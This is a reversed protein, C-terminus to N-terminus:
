KANENTFNQSVSTTRNDFYKRMWMELNIWKWIERSINIKGSLHLNYLSKAKDIDIIKRSAFSESNLIGFILEKFGETRFWEDEPTEFGVKDIRLRIKDPLIGSMADRFIKKTFGNKIKFSSASHISNEVLNYDLFPNRAEIGFRMTNRDDWKLLHELKYEFHDILVSNLSKSGYIKQPIQSSDSYKKVFSNEVFGKNNIRIKSQLKKPLLFFVFAKIGYVSKHKKIYSVVETFLSCWKFKKFLELFYNGFMDHYGALAEDAGQGNLMVKVKMNAEKMIKYSAYISSSGVPEQQTNIFDDMDELFEKVKPYILHRNPLIQEYLDIFKSEDGKKGAGYVASFTHIDPRNLKESLISAISSSDLGGSLTLGVPVDSRLRLKISDTLGKLYESSSVYACNTQIALDYWKKINLVNNKISLKHGHLLKKIEKFFTSNDYDTRNHILYDYIQQGNPNVKDDLISIIANPESAFIFKSENLFYYFPKVGFRDRACFLDGTNKNYIAFAFMGNFKHLAEEGWKIYSNLLVETDSETRFVFDKELEKRLELYNYIEGNFVIIYNQDLSVFPQNANNSLDIISLRTHGLAINNHIFYGEGDPGRHRSNKIMECINAKSATSSFNYIGSIGCM